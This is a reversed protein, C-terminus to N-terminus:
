NVMATKKKTNKDIITLAVSETVQHCAIGSCCSQHLAFASLYQIIVDKEAEQLVIPHYAKGDLVHHTKSVVVPQPSTDVEGLRQAFLHKICPARRSITARAPQLLLM